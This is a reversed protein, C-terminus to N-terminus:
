NLTKPLDNIDFNDEDLDDSLKKQRKKTKLKQQDSEVRKYIILKDM